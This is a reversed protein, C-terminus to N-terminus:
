CRRRRSKKISRRRSSKKISRRRRRRSKKISRCRRSKKISRRRSSKRTYKGDFKFAINKMSKSQKRSLLIKSFLVVQQDGYKKKLQSISLTNIDCSPKFGFGLKMRCLVSSFLEKINSIIDVPNIGTFYDNFELPVLLYSGALIGGIIGYPLFWIIFSALAISAKAVYEAMSGYKRALGLVGTSKLINYEVDPGLSMKGRKTKLVSVKNDITDLCKYDNRPRLMSPTTPIYKMTGLLLLSPTDTRYIIDSFILEVFSSCNIPTMQNTNIKHKNGGEEISFNLSTTTKLVINSFKNYYLNTSIRYVPQVALYTNDFKTYIESVYNHNMNTTNTILYSHLIEISKKTLVGIGKLKVIRSLDAKKGYKNEFYVRAIKKVFSPEPSAICHGVGNVYIDGLKVKVAPPNNTDFSVRRKGYDITVVSHSESGDGKNLSNWVRVIAGPKIVGSNLRYIGDSNEKPIKTAEFISEFLSSVIEPNEYSKEIIRMYEKKNPIKTLQDAMPDVVTLDGPGSPTYINKKVSM